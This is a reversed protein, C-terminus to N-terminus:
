IYQRNDAPLEQVKHSFLRTHEFFPMKRTYHAYRPPRTVASPIPNEGAVHVHTPEPTEGENPFFFICGHDIRLVLPVASAEM